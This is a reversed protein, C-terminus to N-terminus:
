SRLCGQDFSRLELTIEITILEVIIKQRRPGNTLLKVMQRYKLPLLSLEALARTRYFNEGKTIDEQSFPANIETIQNGMKKFSKIAECCLKLVEDDPAPGFGIDHMFGIKLGAVNGKIAEM